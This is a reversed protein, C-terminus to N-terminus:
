VIGAGVRLGWAKMEEILKNMQAGTAFRLADLAPTHTSLQRKAWAEVAATCADADAPTEVHGGEALAYWMARLKRMQPERRWGSGGKGAKPRLVFGCAKFHELLAKRQAVSLQTSSTAGKGYQAVLARYSDDALGLSQKAIHILKIETAASNPTATTTAITRM